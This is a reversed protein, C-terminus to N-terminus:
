GREKPWLDSRFVVSLYRARAPVQRAWKSDLMEDAASDFSGLEAYRLMNVFGSFRSLGLQFVMAVLVERRVPSLTTTWPFKTVLEKESRMLDNQFLYEAEEDSLGLQEINRGIGITLKGAPCVYAVHRGQENRVEGESVRVHATAQSGINRDSAADVYAQSTLFRTLDSVAM